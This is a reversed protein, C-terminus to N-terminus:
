EWSYRRGNPAVVDFRGVHSGGHENRHRRLAARAADLSAFGDPSEARLRAMIERGYHTNPGWGERYEIFWM